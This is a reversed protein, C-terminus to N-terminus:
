EAKEIVADKFYYFTFPYGNDNLEKSTYKGTVYIVDNQSYYDDVTKGDPLTYYFFVPEDSLKKFNLFAGQNCKFDEDGFYNYNVNGLKVKVKVVKGINDGEYFEMMKSRIDTEHLDSFDYDINKTIDGCGISLIGIIAMLFIIIRKM